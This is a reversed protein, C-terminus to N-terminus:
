SGAGVGTGSGHGQGCPRRPWGPRGRVLGHCWLVSTRRCWADDVVVRAVRSGSRRGPGREGARALHWALVVATTSRGVGGKISFLTCRRVSPTSRQAGVTWWDGGTVLRDAMYVGPCIKRATGELSSLLSQDVFLVGREASCGHAGLTDRLRDALRELADRCAADKEAADSVSVCVQGYLNRVLYVPRVREPIAEGSGITEVVRSWVADFPVFAATM